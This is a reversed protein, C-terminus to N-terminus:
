QKQLSYFVTRGDAIQLTLEMHRSDLRVIHCPNPGDVLHLSAPAKFPGPDNATHGFNLDLTEDTRTWSGFVADTDQHPRVIVIRVVEDQFQFFANGQYAPDDTGDITMSTLHWTGFLDGIYGNHQMCSNLSAMLVMMTLLSKILTRM